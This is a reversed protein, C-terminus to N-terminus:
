RAGEGGALRRFEAEDVAIGRHPLEFSLPQRPWGLASLLEELREVPCTGKLEAYDLAEGRDILNGDVQWAPGDLAAGRWVFSGDPEIFMRPLLELRAYAEDFTVSRDLTGASAPEPALPRVHVHFRLM